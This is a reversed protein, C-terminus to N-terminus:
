EATAPSEEKPATTIELFKKNLNSVAFFWLFVFICFIVAVQPALTAVSTVHYIVNVLVFQILAGGSKGLRGGVVDVAAKGKSKLEDDLPIYSMEKTPDFLSYKVGKSLVNQILGVTIIVGLTTLGFQEVLPTVYGNFIIFSFFILGTVFIMLPTVMASLFWSYKRMINTGILMFGITALGTWIQLEGMYNAFAAKSPYMLKIQGKWMVEVLNISIGYCIVLLAILGLYKSKLMYKFSDFVGLKEKKKKKQMNMEEPNFHVPDKLVSKTLYYYLSMIIVCSIIILGILYPLAAWDASASETEENVGLCMGSIVLAANAVFGFMAYFRKSQHLPTIENAFKWFMLGIMTSGWLEAMVYFSAFVWHEIPLMLTQTLKTSYTACKFHLAQHHPYLATIFLLFYILFFSVVMYFVTNKSFVNLLKTYVLMFVVAAPLVFWLKLTPLASEGISTVVMSDKLGRALSYNLLICMMMIAMPLFKKLEFSHIPWILARLGTFQKNGGDGVSKVIRGGTRKTANGEKEIAM